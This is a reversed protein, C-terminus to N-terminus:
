DAAFDGLRGYGGPRPDLRPADQRGDDRVLQRQRLQVDRDPRPATGKQPHLLGQPPDDRGDAPVEQGRRGPGEDVCLFNGVDVTMKLNPRNISQILSLVRDSGNIFFGHNEMVINIGKGAAYDCLLGGNKVMQPFEERFNYITNTSFPRRFSAVDFRMRKLGMREAADIHRKIREIERAQEAEDEMLLNGNVSYTSIEIGASACKERVHDCLEENLSLDPRVFELHFPVFEIHECGHAAAFDIVEDVTMGKAMAGDLCYCSMGLKMKHVNREAPLIGGSKAKM